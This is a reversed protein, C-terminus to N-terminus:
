SDNEEKETTIKYIRDNTDGVYDMVESLKSKLSKIEKLILDLKENESM